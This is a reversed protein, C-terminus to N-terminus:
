ASLQTRLNRNGMEWGCELQERLGWLTGARGAPGLLGWSATRQVEPEQTKRLGRSTDAFKEADSWWVEWWCTASNGDGYCLSAKRTTSM